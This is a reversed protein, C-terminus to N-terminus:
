RRSGSSRPKKRKGTPRITLVPVTAHRVIKEAVSGILIHELGTRGHTAMVISDADEAADMITEYPPGVAVRCEVPPSDKALVKKVTRELSALELAVVNEPPIWGTGEASGLDSFPVFPAVARLVVLCGGSSRALDAAVQLAHSAPESADHPVLIKQFLPM